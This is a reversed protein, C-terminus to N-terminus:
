PGGTRIGHIGHVGLGLIVTRTDPVGLGLVMFVMSGGHLGLVLGSIKRCSPGQPKSPLMAEVPAQGRGNQKLGTWTDLISATQDHKQLLPLCATPAPLPQKFCSSPSPSSAAYLPLTCTSILPLPQKCRVTPTHLLQHPSPSSVAPVSSPSRAYICCHTSILPLRHM